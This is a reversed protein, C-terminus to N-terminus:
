EKIGFHIKIDQACHRPESAPVDQLAICVDICEKVISEYFDQLALLSENPFGGPLMDTKFGAAEALAKFKQNMEEQEKAFANLMSEEM